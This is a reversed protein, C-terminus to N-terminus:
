VSSDPKVSLVIVFRLIYLGRTTYKTNVNTIIDIKKTPILQM